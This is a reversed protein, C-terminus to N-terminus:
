GFAGQLAQAATQLGNAISSAVQGVAAPAVILAIILVAWFWGPIRNM